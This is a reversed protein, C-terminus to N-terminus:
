QSDMYQTKGSQNGRIAIGYKLNHFTLFLICQFKPRIGAELQHVLHALHEAIIVISVAGLLGIAVPYKAIEMVAAALGRRVPEPGLLHIATEGV